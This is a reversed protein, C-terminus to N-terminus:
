MCIYNVYNDDNTPSLNECNNRAIINCDCISKIRDIEIIPNVLIKKCLDNKINGGLM